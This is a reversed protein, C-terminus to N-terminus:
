IIQGKEIVIPNDRTGKLVMNKSVRSNKDLIAYELVAGQEVTTNQMLICSKVSATDHINVRRFIVSDYVEGEICCGGALLCNEVVANKQYITPPEDKVKTFIPWTQHFLNDMTDESLLDLSRGFYEKISNICVLYGKYEYTYINKNNKLEFVTDKFLDHDAGLIKKNLLDIFLKRKMLFTEMFVNNHQKEKRILDIAMGDEDLAISDCDEFMEDSEKINKYVVTIDAKKELHKKLVDRFNVTCIMNSPCIIIYEEKTYFIYDLYDRIIDMDGRRVNSYYNILPNFMFLGENKRDLDWPRGHEIHDVLSRYKNRTFMFVKDIKSNVMNSLVFDIIRYRGAFPISAIPRNYTLKHIKDEKENLNIVGLINNMYRVGKWSITM